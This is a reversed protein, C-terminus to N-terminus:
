SCNKLLKKREDYRHSLWAHAAEMVELESDVHLETRSMIKEVSSFELHLFNKSKRVTAFYSYVFRSTQRAVNALSFVAALQHHTAVNQLNVEAKM